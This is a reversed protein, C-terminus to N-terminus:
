RLFDCLPEFVVSQLSRWNIIAQHVVYNVLVFVAWLAMLTHGLGPKSRVADVLKSHMKPNEM